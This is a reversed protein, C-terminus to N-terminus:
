CIHLNSQNASAIEYLLNKVLFHLLGFSERSSCSTPGVNYIKLTEKVMMITYIYIHLSSLRLLCM